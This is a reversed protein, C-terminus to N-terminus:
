EGDNPNSRYIPASGNDKNFTVIPLQADDLAYVNILNSIRSQIDPNAANETVWREVGRAVDACFITVSLQLINGVMARHVVTTGNRKDPVTFHIRREVVEKESRIPLGEHLCRCRFFYCDDATFKPSSSEMEKMEDLQEDTYFSVFQPGM